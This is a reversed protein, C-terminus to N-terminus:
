RGVSPYSRQAFGQRAQVHNQGELAFERAVKTRESAQRRATATRSVASPEAAGGYVENLSEVLDQLALVEGRIDDRLRDARDSDVEKSSVLLLQSYVTGLAALSHDLQLDAREMRGDLEQLTAAFQRKSDLTTAM